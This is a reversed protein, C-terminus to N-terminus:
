TIIEEHGMTKFRTNVRLLGKQVLMRKIFDADDFSVLLIQHEVKAQDLEGELLELYGFEKKGFADPQFKVEVFEGFEGNWSAADVTQRNGDGDLVIKPRYLVKVQNIAVIVGYGIQAPVHRKSFYSEFIKEPILGRMKNWEDESQCVIFIQEILSVFENKDPAAKRRNPIFANAWKQLMSNQIGKKWWDGSVRMFSNLDNIRGKYKYTHIAILEAVKDLHPHEYDSPHFEITAKM